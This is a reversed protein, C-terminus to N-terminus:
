YSLYKCTYQLNGKGDETNGMNDIKKEMNSEETAETTNTEMEQLDIGEAQIDSFSQMLRASYAEAIDSKESSM